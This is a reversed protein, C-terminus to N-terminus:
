LIKGQNCTQFLKHDTFNERALFLLLHLDSMGFVGKELEFDLHPALPTEPLGDEWHDNWGFEAPATNLRHGDPLRM